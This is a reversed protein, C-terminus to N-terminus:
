GILKARYEESKTRLESSDTLLHFGNDSRSSTFFKAIYLLGFAVGSERLVARPGRGTGKFNTLRSFCHLRHLFLNPSRITHAFGDTCKYLDPSSM